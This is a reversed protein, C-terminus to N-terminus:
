GEKELLAASIEEATAAEILGVDLRRHMAVTHSLLMKAIEAASRPSGNELTFHASLAASLPALDEKHHSDALLLATLILLAEEVRERQESVSSTRGLLREAPAEVSAATYAALAAILARRTPFHYMFAGKSIEAKEIVRDISLYDTGSHLIIDAAARLIKARTARGNTRTKRIKPEQPMATESNETESVPIAAPPKSPYTGSSPSEQLVRMLRRARLAPAREPGDSM